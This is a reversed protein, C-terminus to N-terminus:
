HKEVETIVVPVVSYGRSEMHKRYEEDSKSTDMGTCNWAHHQNARITYALLDGKPNKIIWMLLPSSM